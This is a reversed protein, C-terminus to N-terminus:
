FSDLFLFLFLFLILCGKAVHTELNPFMM